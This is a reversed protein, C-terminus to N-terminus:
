HTESSLKKAGTANDSGSIIRKTIIEQQNVRISHQKDHLIYIKIIQVGQLKCILIM